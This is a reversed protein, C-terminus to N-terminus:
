GGALFEFCRVSIDYRLFFVQAFLFIFFIKDMASISQMAERMM